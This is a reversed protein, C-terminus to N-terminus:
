LSLVLRETWIVGTLLRTHECLFSWPGVHSFLLCLSCSGVWRLTSAGCISRFDGTLSTNLELNLDLSDHSWHSLVSGSFKLESSTQDM